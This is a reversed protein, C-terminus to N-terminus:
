LDRKSDLRANDTDTTIGQRRPVRLTTSPLLQNQQLVAQLRNTSGQGRCVIADRSTVFYLNNENQIRFIIEGFGLFRNTSMM